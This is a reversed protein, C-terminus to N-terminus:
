HEGEGAGGDDGQLRDLSGVSVQAQLAGQYVQCILVFDVDSPQLQVACVPGSGQLVICLQISGLMSQVIGM